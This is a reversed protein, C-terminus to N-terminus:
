APPSTPGTTTASTTAPPAAAVVLFDYSIQRTQGDATDVQVARAAPDVATVEGLVVPM